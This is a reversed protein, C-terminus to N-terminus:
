QHHCRSTSKEQVITALESMTMQFGGDGVVVLSRLLQSSQASPPRFHLVWPVSDASTILRARQNHHYYQGGCKISASTRHRHHGQKKWIM